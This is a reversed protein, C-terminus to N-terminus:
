QVRDCEKEKRGSLEGDTLRHSECYIQPQVPTNGYSMWDVASILVRRCGGIHSVLKGV